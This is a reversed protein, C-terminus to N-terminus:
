IDIFYINEEIVKEIKKGTLESFKQAAIVSFVGAGCGADLIKEKGNLKRNKFVEDIMFSVVWEPTFVVGNQKKVISNM